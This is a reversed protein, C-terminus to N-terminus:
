NGGGSGGSGPSGGSGAGASKVFVVGDMGGPGHVDCFYPFTGAKLTFTKTADAGGFVLPGKDPCEIADRIEGSDLPHTTFSGSFTVTQDDNILLCKPAYKDAADAGVIVTQPGMGRMDTADSADAKCGNIVAGPAAACPDGGSGGTGPSGGQSTNTGGVNGAGSGDSTGQGGAGGSGNSSSCSAFGLPTVAVIGVVFLLGFAGGIRRETAVKLSRAM